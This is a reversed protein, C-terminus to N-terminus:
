FGKLGDPEYEYCYRTKAGIADLLEYPNRTQYKKAAREAAGYIYVM